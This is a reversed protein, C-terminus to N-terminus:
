VLLEAYYFVFTDVNTRNECRQLIDIAKSLQQQDFYSKALKSIALTEIAV